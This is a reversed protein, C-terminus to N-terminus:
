TKLFWASVSWLVRASVVIGVAAAIWTTWDLLWSSPSPVDVGLLSLLALIAWAVFVIILIDKDTM